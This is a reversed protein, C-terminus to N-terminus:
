KFKLKQQEKMLELVQKQEQTLPLMKAQSRIWVSKLEDMDKCLQLAGGIGEFIEFKQEQTLPRKADKGAGTAGAGEHVRGSEGSRLDKGPEVNGLAEGVRQGAPQSADGNSRGIATSGAPAKAGKPKATTGANGSQRAPVSKSSDAGPVVPSQGLGREAESKLVGSAARGAHVGNGAQGKPGAETAATAARPAACVASKHESAYTVPNQKGLAEDFFSDIAPGPNAGAGPGAQVQGSGGGSAPGQAGQGPIVKQENALRGKLAETASATKGAVACSDASNGSPKGAPAGAPRAPDNPKKAPLAWAPLEPPLWNFSPYNKNPNKDDTKAAVWRADKTGQAVINAWGDGLNYLYRGIGWKVAARVLAKSIGGKFAEIDTEESGDVKEVWEGNVRVSLGCMNGTGQVWYRDKWNGPGVIEDLRDMVARADIYALVKAWPKGERNGAQGIRFDVDKQDFPLALQKLKELEVRGMEQLTQLTVLASTVGSKEEETMM